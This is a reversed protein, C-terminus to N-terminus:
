AVVEQPWRSPRQVEPEFPALRSVVGICRAVEDNAFYGMTLMVRITLFSIRRLYIRSQSMDRLSAVQEQPTLRTFRAVRPGFLWPGHEVFHLLLRILVRQQADVRGVYADMYPVAGAETGSLPIPGGKPFLTDACAAVIAQEKRSLLGRPVVKAPYGLFVGCVLLGVTLLGTGLLVLLAVSLESM